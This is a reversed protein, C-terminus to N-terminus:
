LCAARCTRSISLKFVCILSKSFKSVCSWNICLNRFVWGRFLPNQGRSRSQFECHIDPTPLLASSMYECQVKGTKVWRPCRVSLTQPRIYAMRHTLARYLGARVGCETFHFSRERFFLDADLLDALTPLAPHGLRAVGLM